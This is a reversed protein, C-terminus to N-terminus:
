RGAEEFTANRLFGAPMQLASTGGFQKHAALLEDLRPDRIMVPGTGSAVAVSAQQSPAAALQQQPQSPSGGSLMGVSNWGLVAVAALSACGAAIKWRFLAANAADDRSRRQLVKAATAAVIGAEDVVPLAVPRLAPEQAIRQRLGAMFADASGRPALEVSRLLDGVVHHDRWAERGEADEVAWAVAQAFLDGQLQGDALASVAERKNVVDVGDMPNVAKM